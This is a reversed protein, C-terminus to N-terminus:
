LGEEAHFELTTLGGSVRVASISASGTAPQDFLARALPNVLHAELQNRIGRGGNSLDALCIAQLQQRASDSLTVRRGTAREVRELIAGVMMSFIEEGVDPRIFDFVIVNEGIRNLIEPRGLELKFFRDIEGSVKQQVADFSDDPSTNPVREGNAGMRYIGLNSTFILFAESFYVREGRGSTLVGDDLVQLFKDLIRPHAKEIEDFLVVSFPKDQIANTLEGGVDYGVYGPPAGILRQDSHEAAFESMDFRIYAWEDGFLLETITKALETKGTGTPGALFAVGRPRGLKGQEGTLGIVARKVIDLMKTVAHDQGKIRRSVTQDAQRIHERNLQAWPNETVGLKFRRIGDGLETIAVAERRCLDTIAVMDILLLGECQEVLTNEAARLVEETSTAAGPLGRVLTPAVQRRTHRDPNPVKISRLRPNNVVLWPPLDGDKDVIWILPNFLPSQNPGVPRPRVGHGLVLATTFWSHEDPSPLDVRVLYRSSFDALLSIPLGENQVIGPLLEFFRAVSAPARGNQDWQLGLFALGQFEATLDLGDSLPLSFGNVPDFALVHAIGASRLLEALYNQLALPRARGQVVQLPYRDRVNGSLMFQSKLPLFRVLDRSWRPQQEGSGLEGQTGLGVLASAAM